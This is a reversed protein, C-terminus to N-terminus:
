SVPSSYVCLRGLMEWYVVVICECSINLVAWRRLSYHSVYSCWNIILSNWLLNTVQINFTSSVTIKMDQHVIGFMILLLACVGVGRRWGRLIKLSRAHPPYPYEQFQVINSHFKSIETSFNHSIHFFRRFERVLILKRDVTIKLFIGIIPVYM